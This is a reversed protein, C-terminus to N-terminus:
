ASENMEKNYKELLQQTIAEVSAWNKVVFHEPDDISDIREANSVFRRFDPKDEGTCYYNGSIWVRSMSVSMGFRTSYKLFIISWGPVIEKDMDEIVPLYETNFTEENVGRFKTGDPLEIETTWQKIMQENRTITYKEKVEVSTIPECM